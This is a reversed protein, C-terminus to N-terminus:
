TAIVAGRLEYSSILSNWGVMPPRMLRINPVRMLRDLFIATEQLAVAAGPCRHPGDGFSMLSDSSKSALVNRDADVKFPCVGAAAPDTNAARVDVEDNGFSLILNEHRPGLPRVVLLEKLGPDLDLQVLRAKEMGLGQGDVIVDAQDTCAVHVDAREGEVGLMDEHYM